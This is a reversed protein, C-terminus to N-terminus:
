ATAMSNIKNQTSSFDSLFINLPIKPQMKKEQDSENIIITTLRAHHYSSTLDNLYTLVFLALRKCRTELLLM